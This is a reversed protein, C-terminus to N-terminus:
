VLATHFRKSEKIFLELDHLATYFGDYWILGAAETKKNLILEKMQMQSMPKFNPNGNKKLFEELMHELEYNEM